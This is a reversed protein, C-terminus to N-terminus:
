AEFNIHTDANAKRGNPKLIAAGTDHDGARREARPAAPGIQM